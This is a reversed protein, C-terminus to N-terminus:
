SKTTYGFLRMLEPDLHNRAYELDAREFGDYRGAETGYKILADVYSTKTKGHAAGKKASETVYVFGRDPHDDINLRGGACECVTRTIQKPHFVVDEYRVLLRPFDARVYDRYWDNWFEVLSPHHQDFEAYRVTVNVTETFSGTQQRYKPKLDVLERDFDNPVLNPCHEPAHPWDAGYSHRCMKTLILIAACLFLSFTVFCVFLLFACIFLPLCLMKVFACLPPFLRLISYFYYYKQPPLYVVVLFLYLFSGLVCVSQMWKYPDRVTVAPFINEARLGGDDKYTRHTIRYTENFVPTHKGWTVQWRVGRQVPGYREVRAPMHCNAILLEALLNTGTNFTGAVSLFHEAADVQHQFRACSELGLVVPQRGYLDQYQQATPLREATDADPVVGAAEQILDLIPQKDNSAWELPLYQPQKPENKARGGAATSDGGPLAVQQTEDSPQTQEQQDQQLTVYRLIYLVDLLCFLLGAFLFVTLLNPQHGGFLLNSNSNSSTPRRGGGRRKKRRREIRQEASEPSLGGGGGGGNSRITGDTGGTSSAGTTSDRPHASGTAAGDTAAANREDLNDNEDADDCSSSNSASYGGGSYSRTLKRNLMPLRM